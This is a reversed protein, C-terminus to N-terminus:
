GLVHWAEPTKDASKSDLHQLKLAVVMQVVMAQFTHFLHFAMM